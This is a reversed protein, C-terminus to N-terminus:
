RAKLTSKKKLVPEVILQQSLVAWTKPGVKGDADLGNANQFDKVAQETMKGRIGDIKGKYFGANKLAAQIEMNTPKYPGTPPLPEMKIETGAAPVSTQTFSVSSEPVQAKTESAATQTKLAGLQEM